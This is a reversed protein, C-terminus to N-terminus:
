LEDRDIPAIFDIELISSATMEQLGSDIELLEGGDPEATAVCVVKYSEETPEPVDTWDVEFPLSLIHFGSLLESDDDISSSVIGFLNLAEQMQGAPNDGFKWEVTDSSGSEEYVEIRFNPEVAFEFTTWQRALPYIRTMEGDQLQCGAMIYSPVGNRVLIELAPRIKLSPRWPLTPSVESIQCDDRIVNDYDDIKWRSFGQVYGIPLSQTQGGTIGVINVHRSSPGAFATASSVVLSFIIGKM